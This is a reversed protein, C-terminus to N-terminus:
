QLPIGYVPYDQPFPVLSDQEFYPLEQHIFESISMNSLSLVCIDTTPKRIMVPFPPSKIMTWLDQIWEPFNDNYEEIYTAIKRFYPQIGRYLHRKTLKYLYEGKSLTINARIEKTTNGKYLSAALTYRENNHITSLVITYRYISNESINAFWNPFLISFDEKQDWVLRAPAIVKPTIVM